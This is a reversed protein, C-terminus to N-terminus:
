LCAFVCGPVGCASDFQWTVRELRKSIHKRVLHGITGPCHPKNDTTCPFYSNFLYSLGPRFSTSDM